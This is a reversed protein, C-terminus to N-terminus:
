RGSTSDSGASRRRVTLEGSARNVAVDRRLIVPLVTWVLIRLDSRFSRSRAYLLDLHVKQPLIRDVYHGIMDGQDLIEAEKAFALQCLGTVGPRVSLIEAYDDRHLEVFGPDEPRPGVLSMQGRLVNWLQPLEDLKTRALFRGIRTFRADAHGTLSQGTAGDHMKRFKLLMLPEGKWGARRARYFVPGRSELKIALCCAVLVPSLLVLLLLALTVDLARKLARDLPGATAVDTAHRPLRGSRGVGGFSSDSL